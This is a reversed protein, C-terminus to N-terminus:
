HCLTRFSLCLQLALAFESLEMRNISNFNAFTVYLCEQNITGIPTAFGSHLLWTEENFKPMEDVEKNDDFKKFKTRM